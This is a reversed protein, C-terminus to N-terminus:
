NPGIPIEVVLLGPSAKDFLAQARPARLQGASTAVAPNIVLRLKDQNGRSAIPDEPIQYTTNATIALESANVPYVRQWQGTADMRYLALNGAVQSVVELRVADGAPGSRLLSYRVLPGNYLPVNGGVGATISGSTMRTDANKSQEQVVLGASPATAVAPLQAPIAQATERSRPVRKIQPAQPKPEVPRAGIQTPTIRLAAQQVPKHQSIVIAVAAVAVAAGGATSILWPRGMWWSARRAPELARRVHERAVPDALLERLTDENHLADFLAQDELAAAFLASQEDDTLTNTAYGGLLRRIEEQTM